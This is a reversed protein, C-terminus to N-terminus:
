RRVIHGNANVVSPIPAVTYNQVSIGRDILYIRLIEISYVIVVIEGPVIIAPTPLPGPPPFIAPPANGTVCHVSRVNNLTDDGPTSTRV